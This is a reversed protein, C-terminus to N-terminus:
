RSTAKVSNYLLALMARTGELAADPRAGHEAIFKDALDRLSRRGDIISVLYGLMPHEPKYSGLGAFRPVPLHPLMLWYPPEDGLEGTAVPLEERRAAFTFVELKKWRGSARSHMYDIPTRTLGPLAFGGARLLELLEEPSYRQGHRHEQPYSLPGYNLWRGGPALMRHVVAITERLDVPVIDIFWPTVVTDFSGPVFPPAFADGAILHFNTPVGAPPALKHDVCANDISTPDSPFESLTVGGGFLVKNAVLFLLPDLDLCVTRSAFFTQHLDYALRAPGAGLVL